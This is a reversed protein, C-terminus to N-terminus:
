ETKNRAGSKSLKGVPSDVYFEFKEYHNQVPGNGGNAAGSTAGLEEKKVNYEIGVLNNNITNGVINPPIDKITSYGKHCM